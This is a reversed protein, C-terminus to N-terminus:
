RKSIVGFHECYSFGVFTGAFQHFGLGLSGSGECQFHRPQHPQHPVQHVQRTLRGKNEIRSNFRAILVIIKVTLRGDMSDEIYESLHDLVSESTAEYKELIQEFIGVVKLKFDVEGKEKLCNNLFKVVMPLKSPFKEVVLLCNTVVREKITDPVDNMIKFIKELLREISGENVIKILITIALSVVMKSDSGLMNDFIAHGSFLSLRYPSRIIFELVKLTEYHTIPDDNWELLEKLERVFPKMSSNDVNDMFSLMRTCEIKVMDSKRELALELFLLMAELLNRDLPDPSLVLSTCAKLVQLVSFDSLGALEKGNGKTIKKLYNSFNKLFLINDSQRSNLLVNSAVYVVDKMAENKLLSEIEVSCKKVLEQNGAKQMEYLAMLASEVVEANKDILNDKLMREIQVPNQASVFMPLLRLANVKANFSTSSTIDKTVSNTVMYLTDKDELHRLYIALLKKLSPDEHQFGKIM